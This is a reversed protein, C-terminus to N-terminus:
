RDVNFEVRRNQARGRKTRNSAIPRDEGFGTAELLDPDIGEEEILYDRVANARRQSLKKNYRASGVSDTHGEIRVKTLNSNRIADAVEALLAHSARKIRAKNTAFQVKQKIEIKDAKIVILKYKKPCGHQEPNDPQAVGVEDPCKDEHDYIGDGDRDSLPCGHREPNFAMQDVGPEDPCKDDKDAIKDKDRDPCGRSELPGAELPCDDATDLIGDKDNDPDPCGDEDEFTDIDEPDQPCKDLDDEIGDGDTDLDPCGDEDRDGDFDEPKTPCQDESDIIGDGDTDDIPCGKNEVPGATNPCSDDFDLLTDQDNDLDPCGDEDEFQDVDEPDLPCRDLPDLVKDQDNDPDPCGDEDEFQDVDEPREPCADRKDPIGDGDKDLNKKIIVRKPGCDKSNALALQVNEVAIDIHEQARLFDGQALENETFDANSEALALEEPACQYAGSKKAREIQVRVEDVQNSIGPGVCSAAVVVALTLGLLSRFRYSVPM